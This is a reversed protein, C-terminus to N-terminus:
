HIEYLEWGKDFSMVKKANCSDQLMKWNKMPRRDKWQVEMVPINVLVVANMGLQVDVSDLSLIIHDKGYSMLPGEMGLTYVPASPYHENIYAVIAKEERNAFLFDDFAFYFLTLQMVGALSFIIWQFKRKLKSMARMFAPFFLVALSPFIFANLRANQHEFGALFFLYILLPLLFFFLQPRSFDEKRIFFLLPASLLLYGPHFFVTFVFLLNPLHYHLFGNGPSGYELLFFNSPSWEDFLNSRIMTYNPNLWRVLFALGASIAIAIFFRWGYFNRALQMAFAVMPICLVIVSAERTLRAALAFCIAPIIHRKHKDMSFALAHFICATCFFIATMDSMVNVGMRLFYSSPLCFLLTFLLAGNKSCLLSITRYIFYLSGSFALMSLLQLALDAKGLALAPVAGLLPYLVPWTFDGPREGYKLFDLLSDSYRLYAHADQGYLGSYGLLSRFVLVLLPVLLFFLLAPKKLDPFENLEEQM